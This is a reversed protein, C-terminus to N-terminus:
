RKGNRRQKKSNSNGSAPASSSANSSPGSSSANDATSEQAPEQSDEINMDADGEDEVSSPLDLLLMDKQNSLMLQSRFHMVSQQLQEFVTRMASVVTYVRDMPVSAVTIWADRSKGFSTQLAGFLTQLRAEANPYTARFSQYLNTAYVTASDALETLNAKRNEFFHATLAAGAHVTAVVRLVAADTAGIGSALLPKLSQELSQVLSSKLAVEKFNTAANAANTFLARPDNAVEDIHLVGATYHILEGMHQGIAVHTNGRLQLDNLKSRMVQGLHVGIASVKQVSGQEKAALLETNVDSSEDDSKKAGQEPSSPPSVNAPGYTNLADIASDLPHHIAENVATFGDKARAANNELQFLPFLPCLDSSRDPCRFNAGLACLLVLM